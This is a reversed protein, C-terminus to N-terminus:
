NSAMTRALGDAFAALRAMQGTAGEPTLPASLLTVEPLLTANPVAVYVSRRVFAMRIDPGFMKAATIVLEMFEDTFLQRAQSYDTSYASFARDFEPNNVLVLDRKAAAGGSAGEPLVVTHGPFSTPFDVRVIVGRFVAPGRETSPAHVASLSFPANGARGGIEHGGQWGKGPVPFLDLAVFQERTLSSVPKYTLAKNTAAVLRKTALKGYSSALERRARVFWFGFIGVVIVVAIRADVIRTVMPFLVMGVLCAVGVGILQNRWRSVEANVFDCVLQVRGRTAADFSRSSEAAGSKPEANYRAGRETRGTNPFGM